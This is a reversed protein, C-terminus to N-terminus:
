PVSQTIVDVLFADTNTPTQWNVTTAIVKRPFDGGFSALTIDGMKYTKRGTVTVPSYFVDATQLVGFDLALNLRKERLKEQGFSIRGAPSSENRSDAFMELDNDTAFNAGLVEDFTRDTDRGRGASIAVTAGAKNTRLVPSRMTNNEVSLVVRDDGTSKDEGLQGEHWDFVFENTNEGQWTLSWDGADTGSDLSKEKDTEAVRRVADLLNGASFSLSIDNGLGNDTTITVNFGMGVNLDGDRWRDVTPDSGGVALVTANYRVLDKLITEAPIAEFKSRNLVGAAWM